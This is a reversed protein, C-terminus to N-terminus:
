DTSGPEGELKSRYIAKPIDFPWTSNGVAARNVTIRLTGLYIMLAHSGAHRGLSGYISLHDAGRGGPKAFTHNEMWGKLLDRATPWRAVPLPPSTDDGSWDMRPFFSQLAIRLINVM